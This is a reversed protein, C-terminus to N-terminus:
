LGGSRLHQCDSHTSGPVGADSALLDGSSCQYGHTRADGIHVFTGDRRMRGVDRVSTWAQM